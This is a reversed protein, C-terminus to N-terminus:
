LAAVESARFALVAKYLAVALFAVAAVYMVVEALLTTGDRVVNDVLGDLAGYACTAWVGFEFCYGKM